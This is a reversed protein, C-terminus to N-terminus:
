EVRVDDLYLTGAWTANGNGFDIRFGIESVTRTDVPSLVVGLRQWDPSASFPATVEERTGPATSVSMYVQPRDAPDPDASGDAVIKYRLSVEGGRLSTTVGPGCPRVIVRVLGYDGEYIIPVAMSRTGEFRQIGTTFPPSVRATSQSVDFGATGGNEFDWSSIRCMPPSTNCVSANAPCSTCTTGDWLQGPPCCRGSTCTGAPCFTGCCPQGAGGCVVCQNDIFASGEPCRSACATGACGLGGCGRPESRCAGNMCSRVTATDAACSSAGCDQRDQVCTGSECRYSVAAGSNCAAAPCGEVGGNCCSSDPICRGGCNRQGAPCGLPPGDRGTSGAGGDVSSGGTGGGGAGGAGQEPMVPADVPSSGPEGARPSACAAILCLLTFIRVRGM